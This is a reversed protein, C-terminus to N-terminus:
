YHCKGCELGGLQAITLKEVGYKKALEKHIKEYYPNNNDVETERHCNICWGMTLPSHQEVIEMKEVSGHCKQCAIGAATVHQAHSFYVHDPLNHIRTWKVPKQVGTYRQNKADWGVADYLKQIEGDYFEKTLGKHPETAGNYQDITKHCNMCVNLSPIGATKSTRAASHCFNCDIQNDGAHIKHSYHIEQIPQYGKDVGVQMLYDFIIATSGFFLILGFASMLIKNKLFLNWLPFYKDNRLVEEKNNVKALVRLIQTAKILVWILSLLVIVAGIFILTKTHQFPPTEIPIEAVEIKPEEKPPNSTYALIDDIDQDTLIDEYALMPVKNYEEFVAVADKDGSAILKQSNKIWKHLWEQTRKEQVGGLAPGVMKADLKHCAACHTNFLTKGKAPDGEQGWSFSFLGFCLVSLVVKFFTPNIVQKM